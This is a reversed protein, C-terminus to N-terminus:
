YKANARSLVLVVLHQAVVCNKLLLSTEHKDCSFIDAPHERYEFHARWLNELSKGHRPTEQTRRNKSCQRGSMRFRPWEWSSSCLVQVVTDCVLMLIQYYTGFLFTDLLKSLHTLLYKDEM